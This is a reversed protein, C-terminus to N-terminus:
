YKGETLVEKIVMEQRCFDCKPVAEAPVAIIKSQKCHPCWVEIFARSFRDKIAHEKKAENM